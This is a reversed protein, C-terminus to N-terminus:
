RRPSIDSDTMINATFALATGALCLTEGAILPVFAEANQMPVLRVLPGCVVYYLSFLLSPFFFM